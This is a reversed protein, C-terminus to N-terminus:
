RRIQIKKTVQGQNTEIQLFYLGNSLGAPLQLQGNILQQQELHLRGLEDFLRLREVSAEALELQLVDSAPNPYLVIRDAWATNVDTAVTRKLILVTTIGLLPINHGGQNIASINSIRIPFHIYEEDDRELLDEIIIFSFTAIRGKGSAALQGVRTYSVQLGNSSGNPLNQYSAQVTNSSGFWSYDDYALQTSNNLVYSGDYEILFSLDSLNEVANTEQGDLIIDGTVEVTNSVPDIEFTDTSFSIRLTPLM